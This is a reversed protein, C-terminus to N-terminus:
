AASPVEEGQSMEPALSVEAENEWSRVRDLRDMQPDVAVWGRISDKETSLIKWDEASDASHEKVEADQEVEEIDIKSTPAVEIGKERMVQLMARANLKLTREPEEAKAVVKTFRPFLVGFDSQSLHAS